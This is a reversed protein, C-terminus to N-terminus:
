LDTAIPLNHNFIEVILIYEDYIKYIITYGKYVMDRVREDDHYYSQRHKYPMEPLNNIHQNLGKRFKKMASIKDKAINELINQLQIKYLHSKKVTM